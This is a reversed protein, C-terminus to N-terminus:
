RSLSDLGGRIDLFTGLGTLDIMIRFDRTKNPVIRYDRIEVMASWCSGQWRFRYGQEQLSRQQIDYAIHSELRWPSGHPALALLLRTQSSQFQATVPDLSSFWTVIAQASPSAVGGSIGTSVLNHTVPDLDARADVTAGAIPSARLIFELPGAQSAPLLPSRAPTLPDAFSYLQTIEFSAAERSGTSTKVLLRNALSWQVGNTLLVSVQDREDFVPIQAQPGLNSLYTYEIRPEILHKIANDGDRAWVRSFSPGVIELGVTAYHRTIPDSVLYQDDPTTRAGYYTERVGLSPTLNLWPLGSTLLSMTPFVDLRPYSGKLTPSRVMHLYDFLGVASLYLPTAGLRTSRLRYELESQRDLTVATTEGSDDTFFTRQHDSHFNITQPGWVRSLTIQSYLSRQAAQNYTSDFSQWFNIDSLEDAQARIAWGGPFLQSYKGNVKWQWRDQNKDHIFYYLLDGGAGEAPVWRLEQAVGLFGKSWINAFVTTDLSRSVPYYFGDGIYYGQQSNHGFSPVLLGAARERKVPWLLRPLYFVPAGRVRLVANRFHGYGEIEIVAESVAISWPPAKDGLACSTFLGDRFRYHTEDLKDLQRGRFQYTPPLFADVDYLTGVKNRLDFELRDCAFRAEGQDLVVSGSARVTMTTFDFEAEDCRMSIDQYTIEVNGQACMVRDQIWQQQAAQLRVLEQPDAAAVPRVLFGFEAMAVAGLVCAAVALTPRSQAGRYQCPEALLDGPFANYDDASHQLRHTPESEIDTGFPDTNGCAVVVLGHDGRQARQSVLPWFGGSLRHYLAHRFTASIRDNDAYRDRASPV